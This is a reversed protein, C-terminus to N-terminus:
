GDLPSRVGIGPEATVHTYIKTTHVDRHGLLERLNRRNAGLECPHRWIGPKPQHFVLFRRIWDWYAQETRFALHRLRAAAHFEDRLKPSAVTQDAPNGAAKRPIPEPNM